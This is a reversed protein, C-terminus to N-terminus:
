CNWNLHIRFNSLCKTIYPTRELPHTIKSALAHNLEFLSFNRNLNSDNNGGKDLLKEPLNCKGEIYEKIPTFDKSLNDSSSMNDYHTVLADAKAKDDTIITDGSKLCSIQEFPKGSFMNVM